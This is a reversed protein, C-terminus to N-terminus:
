ESFGGAVLDDFIWRADELSVPEGVRLDLWAAVHQSAAPAWFCLDKTYFTLYAQACPVDVQFTVQSDGRELVVYSAETLRHTPSPVINM